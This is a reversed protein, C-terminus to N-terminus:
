KYIIIIRLRRIIIIITTRHNPPSINHYEYTSLGVSNNNPLQHTYNARRLIGFFLFLLIKARDEHLRRTTWSM